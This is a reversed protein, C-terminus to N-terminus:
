VKLSGLFQNWPVFEALSHLRAPWYTLGIGARNRAGGVRACNHYFFQWTREAVFPYFSYSLAFTAFSLSLSLKPPLLQHVRILHCSFFDMPRKM